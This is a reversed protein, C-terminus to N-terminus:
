HTRPTTSAEAAFAPDRRMTEVFRDAEASVKKWALQAADTDGSVGFHELVRAAEALRDAALSAAAGKLAHATTRVAVADRGTVAERIATLRTPMDDLFLRIVETMLERDDSLRHRLATEDFTALGGAADDSTSSGASQSPEAEVAAFLQGTDIPKSLYGDMGAALCRERDSAMAHATMAVIRQHGGSVRERERIAITADLGGMVPMQLDMLVLDFQEQELRTLAERGNPVVTVQHGRRTLLGSAVRQNVINDEVLLVRVRRGGSEMAITGAPTSPSKPLSSMPPEPPRPPDINDIAEEKEAEAGVALTVTFYFTSGVGPESEVWLRGGMMRVLTASITLGLGTGGFRRTTSGDAQRFPEFIAGHQELAIGIGTDAVSVHLTTRGENRSEERVFVRVHGQETFKLANGVLNALIQGIRTPDGLVASPVNPDVTCELALGQQRARVTFPKLTEALTSRFSFAVTELDLKRSEIKSFDLIDNLISLLADASTRVTALNDRQDGSLDSDLVLDTMGIIGNMPTRIEHSM